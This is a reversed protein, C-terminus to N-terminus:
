TAILHHDFHLDFPSRTTIRESREGHDLLYCTTTRRPASTLLHHDLRSCTPVL